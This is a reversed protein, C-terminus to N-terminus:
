EFWGVAGFLILVRRFRLPVTAIGFDAFDLEPTVDIYNNAVTQANLLPLGDMYLAFKLARKQQLANLGETVMGSVMTSVSGKLSYENWFQGYIEKQRLDALDAGITLAGAVMIDELFVIEPERMVGGGIDDDPCLVEEADCWCLLNAKRTRTDIGTYQVLAECVGQSIIIRINNFGSHNDSDTIAYQDIFEGQRHITSGPDGWAPVAMFMMMVVALIISKM